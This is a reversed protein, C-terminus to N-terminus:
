AMRRDLVRVSMVMSVMAVLVREKWPAGGAAKGRWEVCM